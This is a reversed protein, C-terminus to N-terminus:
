KKYSTNNNNNNNNNNYPVLYKVLESLVLRIKYTILIVISGCYM